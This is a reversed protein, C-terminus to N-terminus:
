NGFRDLDHFFGPVTRLIGLRTAEDHVFGGVALDLVGLGFPSFIVTRDDPVPSLGSIVQDLTGAVFDRSGSLEEALHPSTRAKLCHDVDDLINHSKLIIEPSLDRLSVHLVLPAHDFWKAATVHPEGATTAFVVLDASRIAEGPDRHAVLAAGGQRVAPITGFSEMYEANRDYLHIADFEWGTGIFYDHIYRAILGTGFFVIERPQRRRRGALTEAALVASAATRTASIISSELCAFPYGTVPDNLILV